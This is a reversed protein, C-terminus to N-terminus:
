PMMQRRRFMRSVGLLGTGILLLTTPEPAHVAEAGTAALRLLFTDDNWNRLGFRVAAAGEATFGSFTLLDHADTTENAVAATSVGGSTLSRELGSRQAFSLGDYDTSTSFGAPVYGPQPTLDAQDNGNNAPDLVEATFGSM